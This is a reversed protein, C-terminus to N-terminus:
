LRTALGTADTFVGALMDAYVGTSEALKRYNIGRAKGFEVSYTDSGDLTVKVHNIGDTAFRAPLKFQLWNEGFVFMKAGTMAIFRNGGLQDIIAQAIQRNTSM